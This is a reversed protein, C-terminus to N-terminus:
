KDFMCDGEKVKSELNRLRKRLGALESSTILIINMNQVMISAFELDDDDEIIDAITCYIKEPDLSLCLQRVILSGRQELLRRDSTFLSLLDTMFKQFFSADSYSSIQALLQLDRIVM